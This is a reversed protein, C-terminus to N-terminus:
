IDVNIKLIEDHVILTLQTQNENQTFAHRVSRLCPLMEVIGIYEHYYICSLMELIGVFCYKVYNITVNWSVVCNNKCKSWVAIIIVNDYGNMLNLHYVLVHYFTHSFLIFM